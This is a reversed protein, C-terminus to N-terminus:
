SDTRRSRQELLISKGLSPWALLRCVCGVREPTEVKRRSFVTQHCIQAFNVKFEGCPCLPPLRALLPANAMGLNDRFYMKYFDRANIEAAFPLTVGHLPSPSPWGKPQPRPLLRKPGRPLLNGPRPPRAPAGQARDPAAGFGPPKPSGYVGWKGDSCNIVLSIKEQSFIVCRVLKKRGGGARAPPGPARAL